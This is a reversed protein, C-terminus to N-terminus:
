SSSKQRIFWIALLIIALMGGAIALPRFHPIIFYSDHQETIAPQTTPVTYRIDPTLITKWTIDDVKQLHSGIVKQGENLSATNLYGDEMRKIFAATIALQSGTPRPYILTFQLDTEGALAVDVAIPLLPKEDLTIEFLSPASKVFLAHYSVEFNDLTVPIPPPNDTLSRSPVRSLILDVEMQHPRLWIDTNSQLADHAQAVAATLLWTAILKWAQPFLHSM